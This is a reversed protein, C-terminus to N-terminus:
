RRYRIRWVGLLSILLLLWGSTSGSGIQWGNGCIFGNEPNQNVSLGGDQGQVAACYDQGEAEFAGIDCNGNALDSRPKGRQDTKIGSNISCDKHVSPIKNVAVSTIPIALTPTFGGNNTLAVDVIKALDNEQATFSTGTFSYSSAGAFSQSQGNFGVLNFGEDIVRNMDSINAATKASNNVVLSNSLSVLKSSNGTAIHIAGGKGSSAGASNNVFTSYKITAQSPAQLSALDIAGGNASAATAQNAAFTSNILELKGASIAIAGGGNTAKNSDFTSATVKISNSANNDGAIAAGKNSVNNATFLVEKADLKAGSEVYVAAGNAGKNAIFRVKELTLQSDKLWLAHGAAANLVIGTIKAATESNTIGLGDAMILNSSNNGQMNATDQVIGQADVIDNADTDGSIITLNKAPNAKNAATEGGAFGGILQVGVKLQIATSPRYVGKTLWVADVETKNIAQQIDACADAWSSCDAAGTAVPKVYAKAGVVVEFTGLNLKNSANGAADRVQVTCDSYNGQSLRSLVITNSGVLATSDLSDCAGGYVISGQEDTTFTYSPTANTKSPMPAVEVITPATGDRVLNVVEQAPAYTANGAQNFKVQCNGTNTAMTIQAQGTGAGTCGAGTSIAVSLGSNSTAMVTFQNGNAAAAPAPQTVTIIQNTRIAEVTSTRDAAADYTVNGAAKYTILCATEPDTLTISVSNNGAGTCGGSTSIVVPIGTVQAQSNRSEAIVTFPGDNVYRRAAPSQTIVIEQQLKTAVVAYNVDNAAFYNANGAQKFNVNCSGQGTTAITATNSASGTNCATGSWSIAVPLTSTAAAEVTFSAGSEVASPPAQLINIVQTARSIAFSRSVPTAANYTNNGSQTAEVTCTGVALLQLENDQTGTIACTSPTKSEYSVLLGSSATALPSIPVVKAPGYVQASQTPFSITQNSKSVTITRIVQPAAAWQAGGGQNFIITCSGGSVAVISVSNTGSGTCAGGASIDVSLGSSATAKVIFTDGIAAVTPFPVPTTVSIIQTAKVISWSKEVVPAATRDADADIRAAITCTGSTVNTVTNGLITCVSPTSSSYIVTTNTNTGNTNTGKAAVAYPADTTIKNSAPFTVWAVIQNVKVYFTGKSGSPCGTGFSAADHGLEVSCRTIGTPNMTITTNSTVDGCRGRATYTGTPACDGSVKSYACYADSWCKGDYDRWAKAQFTAGANLAAPPTDYGGGAYVSHAALFFLISLITKHVLLYKKM